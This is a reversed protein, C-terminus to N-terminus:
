RGAQGRLWALYAESGASVPLAVVEPVEYPHIAKLHMELDAYRDALTKIVLLVEPEDELRDQWRYTSRVTQRNVCAALGSEVLDRAVRAATAEDPCTTLVVIFEGMPLQVRAWIPM